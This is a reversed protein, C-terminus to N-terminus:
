VLKRWVLITNIQSFSAIKSNQREFFSLIPVSLGKLDSLFLAWDPEKIVKM